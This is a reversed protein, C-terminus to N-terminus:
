VGRRKADFQGKEWSTRSQGSESMARQKRSAKEGREEKDRVESCKAVYYGACQPRNTEAVLKVEQQQWPHVTHSTQWCAAPNQGKQNMVFDRTRLFKANYRRFKYRAKGDDDKEEEGKDDDDDTEGSIRPPTHHLQLM